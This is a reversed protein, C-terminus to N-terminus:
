SSPQGMRAVRFGKVWSGAVPLSLRNGARSSYVHLIAQMQKGKFKKSIQMKRLLPSSADLLSATMKDKSKVGTRRVCNRVLQNWTVLDVDRRSLATLVTSHLSRQRRRRTKRMVNVHKNRAGSEGSSSMYGSETTMGNVKKTLTSEFLVTSDMSAESLTSCRKTTYESEQYGSWSDISRPSDRLLPFLKSGFSDREDEPAPASKVRQSPKNISFSVPPENVRSVSYKYSSGTDEKCVEYESLHFRRSKFSTEALLATSTLTSELHQKSSSSYDCSSSLTSSMTEETRSKNSENDSCVNSPHFMNIDSAGTSNQLGVDVASALGIKQTSIFLDDAINLSAESVADLKMLPFSERFFGNEEEIKRWVDMEDEPTLRSDVIDPMGNECKFANFKLCMECECFAELDVNVAAADV